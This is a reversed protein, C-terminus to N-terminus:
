NLTQLIFSLILKAFKFQCASPVDASDIAARALISVTLRRISAAYAVNCTQNKENITKIHNLHTLFHLIRIKQRLILIDANCKIIKHPIFLISSTQGLQTSTYLINECTPIKWPCCFGKCGHSMAQCSNTLYHSTRGESLRIFFTLKQSIKTLFFSLKEPQLTQQHSFAAQLTPLYAPHSPGVENLQHVKLDSPTEQKM